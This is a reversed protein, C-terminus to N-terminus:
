GVMQWGNWTMPQTALMPGINAFWQRHQRGNGVNAWHWIAIQTHEIHAGFWHPYSVFPFHSTISQIITSIYEIILRLIIMYLLNLSHYNWSDHSNEMRSHLLCTRWYGAFMILPVSGIDYTQKAVNGWGQEGKCACAANSAICSNSKVWASWSSFMSTLSHHRLFIRCSTPTHNHPCLCQWNLKVEDHLSNNLCKVCHCQHWNKCWCQVPFHWCVVSMVYNCKNSTLCHLHWWGNFKWMNSFMYHFIWMMMWVFCRLLETTQYRHLIIEFMSIEDINQGCNIFLM